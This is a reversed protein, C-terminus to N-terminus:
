LNDCPPYRDKSSKNDNGRERTQIQRVRSQPDSENRPNQPLRHVLDQHRHRHPRNRRQRCTNGKEVSVQKSLVSLSHGDESAHM